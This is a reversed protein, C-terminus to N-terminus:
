TLTHMLTNHTNIWHTTAARQPRAVPIPMAHKLTAGRLTVLPTHTSTNSQEEIASPIATGM